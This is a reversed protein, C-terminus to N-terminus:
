MPIEVVVDDWEEVDPNFIGDEVNGKVKPLEVAVKILLKPQYGDIKQILNSVDINVPYKEGNLLTFYISLFCNQKRNTILGFSNITQTIVGNDREMGYFFRKNLLFKQIVREQLVEGSEFSYGKSLCTLFALPADVAYNLGKVDVQVEILSTVRQPVCNITDYITKLDFKPKDNYIQFSDKNIKISRVISVALTDPESIVTDSSISGFSSHKRIGQAKFLHIYEINDFSINEHELDSNNYLVLDFEGIPLTVDIEDRQAFPPLRKFLSGDKRYIVVSVGNPSLKTNRWDISLRINAQENVSYYLHDFQCSQSVCCIMFCLYIINGLKVRM